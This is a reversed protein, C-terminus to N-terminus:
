KALNLFMTKQGQSAYFHLIVGFTNKWPIPVNRVWLLWRAADTSCIDKAVKAGCCCITEFRMKEGWLRYWFHAFHCNCMLYLHTESNFRCTDQSKCTQNDSHTIVITGGVYLKILHTSIREKGTMVDHVTMELEWWNWNHTWSIGIEVAMEAICIIILM